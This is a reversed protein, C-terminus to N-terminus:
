FQPFYFAGGCVFCLLSIWRGGKVKWSQYCEEVWKGGGKDALYIYMGEAEARLDGVELFVPCAIGLFFLLMRLLALARMAQWKVGM